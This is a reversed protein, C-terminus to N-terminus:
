RSPFINFETYVVGRQTMLQQNSKQERKQPHLSSQYKCFQKGIFQQKSFREFSRGFVSMLFLQMKLHLGQKYFFFMLHGMSSPYTAFNSYNHVFKSLRFRSTMLKHFLGYYEWEFRHDYNTPFPMIIHQLWRGVM